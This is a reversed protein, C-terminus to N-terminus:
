PRPHLALVITFQQTEMTRNYHRSDEIRQICAFKKESELQRLRGLLIEAIAVAEKGSFIVYVYHRYLSSGRVPEKHNLARGWQMESGISRQPGDSMIATLCRCINNALHITVSKPKKASGDDSSAVVQLTIEGLLKQDLEIAERWDKRREFASTM